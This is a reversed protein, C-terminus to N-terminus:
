ARRRCPEAWKSSSADRSYLHKNKDYLLDTTIKWERDMFDLYKTDGTARAMDAFVPPAM